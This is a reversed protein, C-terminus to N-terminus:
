APLDPGPEGRDASRHRFLVYAVGGLPIPLWYSLLRYLLTAVVAQAAPVGALTLTGVLGAEVFGLGGPTLPIQSLLEASAYALVVLSPRPDAHVASLAALLSFYDFVTNGAAALLASRWRDRLTAKIFDRLRLLEAAVGKLPHRRRVTANAITEVTRGVWSLLGDTQLAFAGVIVILVLVAIGIYTATLLGHAVPAGAILAPLALAPLALATGVQLLTSTTLGAAAQGVSVGADHLMSVSQPTAAGPVIRGLANGAFVTTGVVFWSDRGLTIRDLEILWIWSVLQLALALAGFAWDIDRLSRWSSAESLVRPLLLYLAVAVVILSVLSRV